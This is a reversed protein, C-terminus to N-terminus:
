FPINLWPDKGATISFQLRNRNSSTRNYSLDSTCAQLMLLGMGREPLRELKDSASETQGTLDFGDSNDEVVCMLKNSERWIDITIDVGNSEFKAHQVLNAIWEHTVLKTRYVTDTDLMPEFELMEAWREFLAHVDDVVTGM